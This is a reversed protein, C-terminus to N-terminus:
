HERKGIIEEARRVLFLQFDPDVICNGFVEERGAFRQRLITVLEAVTQPKLSGNAAGIIGNFSMMTSKRNSATVTRELLADLIKRSSRADDSSITSLTSSFHWWYINTKGSKWRTVTAGTGSFIQEDLTSGREMLSVVTNFSKASALVHGEDDTAAFVYGQPLVKCLSICAAIASVNAERVKTVVDAIHDNSTVIEAMWDRPILLESAFRNAEAETLRYLHEGFEGQGATHCSITGVHWPILLHGLEHALTFRQRKPSKNQDLIILPRNKRAQRRLLVADGEVPLNDYVIDAFERVLNEVPIPPTLSRRRILRAALQEEPGM